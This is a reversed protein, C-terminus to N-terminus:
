DKHYPEFRILYDGPTERYENLLPEDWFEFNQVAISPTQQRLVQDIFHIAGTQTLVNSNDIDFGVFDIITTDLQEIITDFVEKGPNIMIDLGKGSVLVPIESYTSYNSVVDVFDDLFKSGQILHYAVFGYLPNTPDTYNDDEGAIWSALDTFTHIGRKHFVSDHELVLTVSKSADEGEKVNLDLVADLGTADVAAKFISYGEHQELWKFSTQSVPVLANKIVHVYGNSVEINPEIVPAQNNIKLLCILRKMILCFSLIALEM